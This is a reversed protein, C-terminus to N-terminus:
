TLSALKEQYYWIQERYWEKSFPRSTNRAAETLQDATGPGYRRDIELGFGYQNGNGGRPSNCYKTQLALNSRMFRTSLSKASRFHGCDADHWNDVKRGCGDVCAGGYQKFEEQRVVQSMLWWLVGGYGSYRVYLPRKLDFEAWVSVKAKRRAKPRKSAKRAIRLKRRRVPTAVVQIDKM